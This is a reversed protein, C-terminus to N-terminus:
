DDIIEWATKTANIPRAAKHLRARALMRDTARDLQALPIGERMLALRLTDYRLGDAARWYDWARGQMEATVKVADVKTDEWIM